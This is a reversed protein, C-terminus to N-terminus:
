LSLSSQRTTQVLAPKGPPARHRGYRRSVLPCALPLTGRRDWLGRPLQSVTYFGGLLSRFRVIRSAFVPGIGPVRRLTTSDASNLEVVTGKPFKDSSYPQYFSRPEPKPKSAPTRRSKAQASTDPAPVNRQRVSDEAQVVPALVVPEPQPPNFVYFLMWGALILVLIISLARRDGPSFYLYDQINM